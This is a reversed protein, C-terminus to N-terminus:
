IGWVALDMLLKVWSEVRPPDMAKWEQLILKKGLTISQAIIAKEMSNVNLNDMSHLLGVGENDIGEEGFARCIYNLIFGWYRVLKACRWFM